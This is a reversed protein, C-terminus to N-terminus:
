VLESGQTNEQEQPQNWSPSCVEPAPILKTLMGAKQAPVVGAQQAPMGAGQAPILKTLIGAQPAPILKTLM